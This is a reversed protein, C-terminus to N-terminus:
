QLSSYYVVFADIPQTVVKMNQRNYANNIRSLAEAGADFPKVMFCPGSRVNEASVITSREEVIRPPRGSNNKIYVDYNDTPQNPMPQSFSKGGILNKGIDYKANEGNKYYLLISSVLM